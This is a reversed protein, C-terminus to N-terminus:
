QMERSPQRAKRPLYPKRLAESSARSLLQSLRMADGATIAGRVTMLTDTQSVEFIVYGDECITLEVAIGRASEFRM